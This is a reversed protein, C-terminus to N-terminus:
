PTPKAPKPNKTQVKVDGIDIEAERLLSAQLCCYITRTHEVSLAALLLCSPPSRPVLYRYPSPDTTSSLYDPGHYIPEVLQRPQLRFSIMAVRYGQQKFGHGMTANTKSSRTHYATHTHTCQINIYCAHCSAERSSTYPNIESNPALVVFIHIPTPLM